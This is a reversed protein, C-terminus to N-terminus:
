LGRGLGLHDLDNGPAFVPGSHEQLGRAARAAGLLEGVAREGDDGVDLSYRTVFTRIHRLAVNDAMEQAHRMVYPWVGAEDRRAALLSERIARNVALAAEPGLDRRMAIAGLPIPLGRSEEWWGGLDALRHLGRNAYTFRGEHIVVGAEAEGAKVSGMVEDFVMQVPVYARGSERMFLGLLLDATTGPGPVAVRASDLDELTRGPLSVLLPGVGWGMAGGARLLWYRDMLGAAAAVSVKCVDPFDGGRGQAAWRNLEEVDALTIDFELGPATLAGTALPGFIFTDNPCTSYGLTLTSM